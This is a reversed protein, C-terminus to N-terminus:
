RREQRYILVVAWVAFIATPLMAALMPPLGYLQGTFGFLRGAFHFALGLCIGGFLRLGMNGHRTSQPTFAFAVLAMVITAVPYMLKRWWAILYYDTQQSNEELHAIYATLATLSMQDPKVLLVDLLNKSINAQWVAESEQKVAVNDGNLISRRVNKLQWTGDPLVSAAEAQWNEALKFAENYRYARIDRLSQDPLMERINVFSNQEKLWLGEAGTSVRGDKALTKMNEAYRVAKPSVWEG